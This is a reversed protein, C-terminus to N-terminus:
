SRGGIPLLNPSLNPSAIAPDLNPCPPKSTSIDGDITGDNPEFSPKSNGSGAGSTAGIGSFTDVGVVVGNPTM